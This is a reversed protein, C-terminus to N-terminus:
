TNQKREDDSRERRYFLRYEILKDRAEKLSRQCQEYERETDDRQAKLRANEDRLERLEQDCAAVIKDAKAAKIVAAQFTKDWVARTYLLVNVVWEASVLVVFAAICSLALFLSLLVAAVQITGPTWEPPM